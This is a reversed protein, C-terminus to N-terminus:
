KIDEKLENILKEITLITKKYVYNNQKEFEAIKYCCNENSKCLGTEILKDNCDSKYLKCAYSGWDTYSLYPCNLNIKKANPNLLCTIKDYQEKLSDFEREKLELRKVVQMFLDAVDYKDMSVIQKFTLSTVDINNIVIPKNM